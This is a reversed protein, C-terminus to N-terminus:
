KPPSHLVAFVADKCKADEYKRPRKKSPGFLGALGSANFKQLTYSVQKSTVSLFQSIHSTPIKEFHALVTVARNRQRLPGDCIHHLLSEIEASTITEGLEKKLDAADCQSQLLNLMWHYHAFINDHSLKKGARGIFLEDLINHNKIPSSAKRSLNHAQLLRHITSKTLIGRAVRENTEILELIKSISRQPNERKANLIAEQVKRALKCRGRDVRPKSELGKIGDRRWAYYWTSITKESVYNKRSGPIVYERQALERIIRCLEGRELSKRSVLPGLISLRFLAKSDTQKMIRDDPICSSFCFALGFEVLLFYSHEIDGEDTASRM